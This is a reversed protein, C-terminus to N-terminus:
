IGRTTFAPLFLPGKPLEPIEAIDPYTVDVLYLGNPPATAASKCRDGGDLLEKIWSAPRRSLGVEMLSGVINRVMHLLFANATIEFVLLNSSEYVTAKEVNRFPSLSQCGAGRFASFDQEGLLFQCATEMLDGRLPYKVWTVGTSLIAPRTEQAVMVYRYTRSLASFRAHFDCGVLGAWVLAVSDPLKSNAGMVWNRGDRKATCDFHVVQYSAHVATDTRGACGVTVSEDAVYSLAKELVVQVSPSHKQRQFGCFESGDYSVIAAYRIVGEPLTQNEPIRCNPIYNWDPTQL